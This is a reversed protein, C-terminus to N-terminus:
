HGADTYPKLNKAAGAALFINFVAFLLAVPLLVSIFCALTTLMQHAGSYAVPRYQYYKLLISFVLLNLSALFYGLAVLRYEGGILAILLLPLLFLAFCATHKAVKGAIFRWTRDGGATLMNVPEYESYFSVFVMTLLLLSLASLWIQYFGFLGPIYFLVIAVLNKRVGSQWEFMGPPIMQLKVARSVTLVRSPVTFAMLIIVSCFVLAHLYLSVSLLLVTVPLTFLLYEAMFVLMPRPMIALLFHYDKRKNHILWVVYLAAGPIIFPWPHIAIRQILFLIMLPLLIILLFLARFLGVDASGRYLQLFRLWILRLAM